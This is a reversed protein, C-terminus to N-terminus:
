RDGRERETASQLSREIKVVLTESGQDGTIGAATVRFSKEENPSVWREPAIEWLPIEIRETDSSANGGDARIERDELARRVDADTAQHAPHAIPSRNEVDYLESAPVFERM